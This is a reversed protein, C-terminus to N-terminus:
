RKQTTAEAKPRRAENERRLFGSSFPGSSKRLGTAVGYVEFYHGIFFDKCM